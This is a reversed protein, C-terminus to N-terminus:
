EAILGLNVLAAHIGEATIAVGSQQLIPPAEYFGLRGTDTAQFANNGASLNDIGANNTVFLTDVTLPDPVGGGGGPPSYAGM